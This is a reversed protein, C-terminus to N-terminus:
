RSCQVRSSLVAPKESMCVYVCVCVCVEGRSEDGRRNERRRERRGGCYVICEIGRERNVYENMCM